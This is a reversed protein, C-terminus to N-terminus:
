SGVPWPCSFGQAVVVLAWAGKLRHGAILSAVAVLLRGLTALSYGGSAETLSLGCVAAFHRHVM